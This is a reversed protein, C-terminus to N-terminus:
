RLALEIKVTGTTNLTTTKTSSDYTWNTFRRGNVLVQAPKTPSYVKTTATGAPAEITCTLRNPSILEAAQVFGDTASIYLNGLGTSPDDGLTLELTAGSALRKAPIFYAPYVKGDLKIRSIYLNSSGTNVTNISIKSKDTDIIASAVSPSCIVFQAPPSMVPFLGIMSWLLWGSVGVYHTQWPNHPPKPKVGEYMVAQKFLPVWVTRIIRQAEAAAGAYYLMYPYVYQYDNFWADNQCYDIMRQVFDTQNPLALLGFPDHPVAFQWDRSTGEFLGQPNPNWTMKSNEIPGWNGSADKVRFVKNSADWLNTYAKSLRLYEAARHEDGLAKALLGLANFGTHFELSRSCAFGGTPAQVLYGITRLTSPTVSENSFDAKLATYLKPYEGPLGSFYAHAVLVPCFRVSKNGWSGTFLCVNGDMYGEKHYRALYTNIVDAMLEPYASILFQYTGRVNDWCCSHYGGIFQWYASSAVSRPKPYLGSYHGSDSGDIVNALMTYLATYAMRKAPETGELKVRALIKEWAASCRSHATNFDTYETTLFTQAQNLSSFSVAVAVAVRQTDFKAFIRLTEGTINDEFPVAKGSPDLQGLDSCPTSFRIAYFAAPRGPEGVTVQLNNNSIRKITKETWRNLRAWEDVKPKGFDLIIYKSQTRPPFTIRFVSVHPTVTIQATSQGTPKDPRYDIKLLAPDGSISARWDDNDSKIVPSGVCPYIKPQRTIVDATEATSTSLAGITGFPYRIFGVKNQVASCYQIQEGAFALNISLVAIAGLLVANKTSCKALVM